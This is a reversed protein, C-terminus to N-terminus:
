KWIFSLNNGRAGHDRPHLGGAPPNLRHTRRRPIPLPAPARAGGAPAPVVGARLAERGAGQFMIHSAHYIETIQWIAM